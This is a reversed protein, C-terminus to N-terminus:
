QFSFDFGQDLLEQSFSPKLKRRRLCDDRMHFCAKIKESLVHAPIGVPFQADLRGLLINFVKKSSMRLVM